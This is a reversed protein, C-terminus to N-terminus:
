AQRPQGNSASLGGDVPLNVGNVFRADDSALFAIVAAIDDPEGARGMPIREKFKDMLASDQVMDTTMGTLTLTPNVANVRVGQQGLDLALARTLNTVAGKAANYFSMNWDGGLGSVSSVNVICGKTALLHPVSARTCHFVGDLDTAMIRRWDDVSAETISGTTAIGANNVLVDLQKFREIVAQVLAEVSALDSVDAVHTMTRDQDLDAASRVLKDKAQDAMVVSAGEAAFRRATAAGIGSGAGTVLVIKGKFRQM